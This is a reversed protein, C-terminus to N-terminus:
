EQSAEAKKVPTQAPSADKPTKGAISWGSLIAGIRDQLSVARALSGNVDNLIVAFALVRGNASPAYGALCSVGTLTGTKARLAGEAPTGAM